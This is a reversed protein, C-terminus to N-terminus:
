MMQYLDKPRKDLSVAARAGRRVDLVIKGWAM